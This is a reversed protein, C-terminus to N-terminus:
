YGEVGERGLAALQDGGGADRDDGVDVVDEADGFDVNGVLTEEVGEHLGVDVDGAHRFEELVPEAREGADGKM